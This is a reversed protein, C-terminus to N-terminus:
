YIGEKIVHRVEISIAHSEGNNSNTMCKLSDVMDGFVEVMDGTLVSSECTSAVLEKFMILFITM